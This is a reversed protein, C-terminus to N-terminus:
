SIILQFNQPAHFFILSIMWVPRRVSQTSHEEIESDSSIEARKSIKTALHGGGYFKSHASTGTPLPGTPLPSQPCIDQPWVDTCRKLCDHM